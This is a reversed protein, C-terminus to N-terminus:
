CPGVRGSGPVERADAAARGGLQLEPVGELEEVNGRTAIVFGVSDAGLRRSVFALARTTAPDLWQADDVVCLLPQSTATESMLSLVALGVIYRGAPEGSALGFAVRLAEGQPDPLDDIRHTMSRCLQQLGAYPLDVEGEVGVARAVQFEPASAILQELLATKGVGPEGRIVLVSSAGDQVTALLARLR